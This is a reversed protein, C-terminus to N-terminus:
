KKKTRKRLEEIAQELVNDKGKLFASLDEPVVIDPLIGTEYFETGDAYSVRSAAIYANLGGPLPLFLPGGVCSSSAEGIVVGRASAKLLLLFDEGASATTRGALIVLPQHLKISDHSFNEWGASSNIEQMAVNKYYDCYKSNADHTTGIAEATAKDCHWAGVTKYRANHVRTANKSTIVHSLHIIHEAITQWAADAGGSNNRIDIILGRCQRLQLLYRYFVSDITKIHRANCTNLAIYGIDNGVIKVEVPVWDDPFAWEEPYPQPHLIRPLKVDALEGTPTQVTLAINTGEKGRLMPYMSLNLKAQPTGASVYPYVSDRLYQQIPISNIKVIESGKPITSVKSKPMNWVVVKQSFIRPTIQPYGFAPTSMRTHAENFHALFSQLTFYYDKLSEAQEIKPLYVLYLSDINVQQLREPYAFNYHMEKWFQSLAYIKEAKTLLTKSQAIANNSTISLFIAVLITHYRM